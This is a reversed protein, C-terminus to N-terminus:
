APWGREQGKERRLQRTHTGEQALRLSSLALARPPQGDRSPLPQMLGPILAPFGPAASHPTQPTRPMSQLPVDLHSAKRTGEYCEWSPRSRAAQCAPICLCPAHTYMHTHTYTHPPCPHVDHPHAHRHICTQTHHACTHTHMCTRTHTNSIECSWPKSVHSRFPPRVVKGVVRDEGM